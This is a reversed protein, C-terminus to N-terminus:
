ANRSPTSSSASCRCAAADSCWRRSRESASRAHVEGVDARRADRASALLDSSRASAARRRGGRRARARRSAGRTGRPPPAARAVDPEEDRVRRVVQVRVVHDAVGLLERAEGVVLDLEDGLDGAVVALAGSPSCSANARRHGSSWSSTRVSAPEQADGDAEVAGVLPADRGDPALVVTLAQRDRQHGRACLSM